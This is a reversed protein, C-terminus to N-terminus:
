ETNCFIQFWRLSITIALDETKEEWSRQSRYGSFSWPSLFTCYCNLQHFCPWPPFYPQQLFAVAILNLSKWKATKSKNEPSSLHDVVQSSSGDPSPRPFPCTWSMSALPWKRVRAVTIDKSCHAGHHYLVKNPQLFSHKRM